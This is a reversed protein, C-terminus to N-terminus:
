KDDKKDKDNEKDLKKLADADKKDRKTGKKSKKGNKGEEIEELKEDSPKVVLLIIIAILMVGAISFLVVSAINNKLWETEGKITDMKATVSYVQYGAAKEGVLSGETFVGFVLYCGIDQPKFTKSSPYWAYKNDSKAWDDPHKDEDIASDYAEIKRFIVNGDADPKMLDEATVTVDGGLKQTLLKAYLEAYYALYDKDKVKSLDAEAKLEEFKILTLDNITFNKAYKKQFLTTDFFYLGYEQKYGSLATVTFDDVSRTVDIVGTKIKDASTEEEVTIGQNTVSFTFSPIEEIDWVNDATIKTKYGDVYCYMANGIPDSAVVKFEYLGLSSLSLKLSSSSLSTSSSASDSVQTKYYINFKLKKYDTDKDAILGRLSPLYFYSNTGAYVDKAKETVLEQYRAFLAEGAPTLTTTKAEDDNVIGAYAPGEQQRNLKIYDGEKANDPDATENAYWNLYYEKSNEGTHDNDGLTFKISVFEMGYEEYVSTTEAADGEGKTYVTDFFYTSTTLTKYTQETHTPNYQYYEMTKDVTTDLVDIVKYDLSFPMGLMFSYIEEDVVLVPAATDAIKGDDNLDFAQGNLEKFFLKTQSEEEAKDEPLEATFAFPVMPTKSSSSFYESYNSGINEFAGITQAEGGGVKMTVFFQGDEAEAAGNKQALAITIDSTADAAAIEAADAGDNVKVSLKGEKNEFAITNTSKDEKVAVAPANEFTLNMKSFNTDRFSFTMSLYKVEGKGEYWKLALEHKFSVNSGSRLVFALASPTEKDQDVSASNEATFIRSPSYLTGEADASVGSALIGGGLAAAGFASALLLTLIKSKYKKM